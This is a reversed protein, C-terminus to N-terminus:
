IRSGCKTRPCGSFTFTQIHSLRLTHFNSPTFTQPHSLKFTQCHTFPLVWTGPSLPGKKHPPTPPSQNNPNCINQINPWFIHGVSLSARVSVYGQVVMWFTVHTLVHTLCKIKHCGSSLNLLSSSWILVYSIQSCQNLNKECLNYRLVSIGGYDAEDWQLQYDNWVQLCFYNGCTELFSIIM